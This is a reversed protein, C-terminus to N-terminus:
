QYLKQSSSMSPKIIASDVRIEFGNPLDFEYGFGELLQIPEEGYDLVEKQELRLLTDQEVEKEAFIKLIIGDKLTIEVSPVSCPHTM